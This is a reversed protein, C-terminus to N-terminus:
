ATLPQEDGPKTALGSSLRELLVSTSVQPRTYVLYDHLIARIFKALVEATLLHVVDEIPKNSKRMSPKPGDNFMALRAQVEAERRDPERSLVLHYEDTTSLVPKGSYELTYTVTKDLKKKDASNPWLRFPKPASSGRNQERAKEYWVTKQVILLGKSALDFTEALMPLAVESQLQRERYGDKDVGLEMWHFDEIKAYQSSKFVDIEALSIGVETVLRRLFRGPRHSTEAREAVVAPQLVGAILALDAEMDPGYETFLQNLATYVDRGQADRSVSPLASRLPPLEALAHGITGAGEGQVSILFNIPGRVEAPIQPLNLNLVTSGINQIKSQNITSNSGAMATDSSAQSVSGIIEEIQRQLDQDRQLVATLQERFFAQAAADQPAAKLGDLAQKAKSPRKFREQLLKYLRFPASVTKKGIEVTIAEALKPLLPLLAAMVQAVMQTIDMSNLDGLHNRIGVADLYRVFVQCFSVFPQPGQSFLPRLRM